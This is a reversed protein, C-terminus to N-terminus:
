RASSTPVVDVDKLGIIQWNWGRRSSEEWSALVVRLLHHGTDVAGARASVETKAVPADTGNRARRASSTLRSAESVSTQVSIARMRASPLPRNLTNMSRSLVKRKGPIVKM